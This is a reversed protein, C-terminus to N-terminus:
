AKSVTEDDSDADEDDGDDEDGGDDDATDISPNSADDYDDEAKDDDSSQSQKAKRIVSNAYDIGAEAADFDGRAISREASKILAELESFESM